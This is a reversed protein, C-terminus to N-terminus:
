DHADITEDRTEQQPVLKPRVERGRKNAVVITPHEAALAALGHRDRVHKQMKGLDTTAYPCQECEYNDLDHWKTVTYGSM